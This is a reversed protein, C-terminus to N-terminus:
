KRRVSYRATRCKAGSMVLASFPLSSLRRTIPDFWGQFSLSRGCSTFVNWCRFLFLGLWNQVSSEQLFFNAPVRFRVEMPYPLVYRPWSQSGLSLFTDSWTTALQLLFSFGKSCASFGLRSLLVAVTQIVYWSPSLWSISILLSDLLELLSM